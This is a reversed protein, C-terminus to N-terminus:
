YHMPLRYTVAARCTGSQSVTQLVTPSAARAGSLDLIAPVALVLAIFILGKRFSIAYVSLLTVVIALLRFIYYRTGTTEGVYPYFVLDALLFLFLLFFKRGNFPSARKASASIQEVTQM